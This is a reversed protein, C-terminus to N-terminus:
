PYAIEDVSLSNASVGSSPAINRILAHRATTWIHSTYIFKITADFEYLLSGLFQTNFLLQNYDFIIYKFKNFVGFRNVVKNKCVRGVCHRFYLHKGVQNQFM